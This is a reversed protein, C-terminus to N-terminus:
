LLRTHGVGFHKEDDFVLNWTEHKHWGVVLFGALELLRFFVFTAILSTMLSLRPVLFLSLLVKKLLEAGIRTVNARFLFKMM